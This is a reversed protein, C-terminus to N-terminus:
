EGDTPGGEEDAYPRPEQAAKWAAQREMEIRVREGLPLPRAVAAGGSEPPGEQRKKAELKALARRLRESQM